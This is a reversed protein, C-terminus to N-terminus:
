ARSHHNLKPKAPPVGVPCQRLWEYASAIDDFVAVVPETLLYYSREMAARDRYDPGYVWAFQTIGLAALRSFYRLSHEVNGQQWDGHLESHDSLIKTCPYQALCAYVQLGGAQISVEDHLGRWQNYLWKNTADYTIRLGPSDFLYPLEEM